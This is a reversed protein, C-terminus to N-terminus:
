LVELLDIGISIIMVVIVIVIIYLFHTPSGKRSKFSSQGDGSQDESMEEEKLDVIIHEVPM